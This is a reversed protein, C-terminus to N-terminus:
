DDYRLVGFDPIDCNIKVLVEEHDTPSSLMYDNCVALIIQSASNRRKPRVPILAPIPRKPAIHNNESQISQDASHISASTSSNTQSSLVSPTIMPGSYNGQIPGDFGITQLICSNSEINQPHINEFCEFQILDLVDVNENREDVVILVEDANPIITDNENRKDVVILEEDPNPNVEGDLLFTVSKRRRGIRSFPINKFKNNMLISKTQLVNEVQDINTNRRSTVPQPRQVNTGTSSRREVIRNRKINLLKQDLAINRNVNM